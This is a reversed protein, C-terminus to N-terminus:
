PDPARGSGTGPGESAAYSSLDASLREIEVELDELARDAAPWAHVSAAHAVADIALVVPDADFSAAQGRLRHTEFAVARVDRTEVASALRKQAHPVGELFQGVIRHLLARDSQLRTLARNLSGLGASTTPATM